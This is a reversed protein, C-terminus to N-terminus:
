KSNQNSCIFIVLLNHLLFTTFCQMTYLFFQCFFNLPTNNGKSFYLKSQITAFKQLAIIFSLVNSAYAYFSKSLLRYLKLIQLLFFKSIFLRNKLLFYNFLQFYLKKLVSYCVCLINSYFIPM